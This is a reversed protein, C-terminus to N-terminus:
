LYIRCLSLNNIFPNIEGPLDSVLIDISHQGKYESYRAGETCCLLFRNGLYEETMDTKCCVLPNVTASTLLVKILSNSPLPASFSSLTVHHVSSDYSM